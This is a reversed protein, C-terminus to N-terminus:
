ASHLCRKKTILIIGTIEWLSILFLGTKEYSVEVAAGLSRERVGLTMREGAGLGIANYLPHNDKQCGQCRLRVRNVEVTGILTKIRKLEQGNRVFVLGCKECFKGGRLAKEEIEGMVRRFIGLLVEVRIRLLEKEVWHVYTQKLVISVEFSLKIEKM